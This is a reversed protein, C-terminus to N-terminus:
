DRRRQLTDPMMTQAPRMSAANDSNGLRLAKRANRRRVGGAADPGRSAEPENEVWIHVM